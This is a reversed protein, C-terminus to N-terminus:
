ADVPVVTDLDYTTGAMFISMQMPSVRGTVRVRQGAEFGQLEPPKGLVVAGGHAAGADGFRLKWFGGELDHWELTGDLTSLENDSGSDEGNAPFDMNM